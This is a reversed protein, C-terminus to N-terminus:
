SRRIYLRFQEKVARARNRSMPLRQGDSLIVANKEVSYIYRQNVLYRSHIRIFGYRSYNIEMEKLSERVSCKGSVSIIDIYHDDSQMYIIDDVKYKREAGSDSLLMYGSRSNITNILSEVIKGIEAELYNKRIFGLAKFIYAKFVPEDHDTVFIIQASRHLEKIQEAIDTDSIEPMDIDTFVADFPKIYNDELMKRVSTYLKFECTIKYQSFTKEIIEYKYTLEEQCDDCIAIYM